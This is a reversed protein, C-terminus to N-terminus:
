YYGVFGPLESNSLPIPKLVLRSTIIASSFDLQSNKIYHPIKKLQKQLIIMDTQNNLTGNVTFSLDFENGAGSFENGKFQISFPTVEKWQRQYIYRGKYMIQQPTVGKYQPQTPLMINIFNQPKCLRFFLIFLSLFCFPCWIAPATNSIVLEPSCCHDCDDEEECSIVIIQILLLPIIMRYNLAM